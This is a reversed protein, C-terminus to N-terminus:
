LRQALFSQLGLSLLSPEATIECINCIIEFCAFM